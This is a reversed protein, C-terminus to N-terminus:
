QTQLGRGAVGVQVQDVPIELAGMQDGAVDHVGMRLFYNGKVPIAVQQRLPMGTRLLTRYTADDLDVAATSLLSNVPQGEQTYVITAFELTGHRVGDASQTLKVRHIDAQFLITDVRFPKAEWGAQLYNGQPLPTKKEFKQVADSPALSATFVIETPPVAGLVMADQFGGKPHHVLVGAPTQDSAVPEPAAVQSEAISQANGGRAARKQIAAIQRQEVADRNVAYYGQRHQVHVGPRDVTIKIHRYEGDWATNTTAYALTYYNSGNRVVEAIVDKLGNTNFYAKGGTNEAVAQLDYIDNNMRSAFSAGSHGHAGGAPSMDFGDDLGRTDVPYIAVRSITLNDTLDSLDGISGGVVGFSDKFPNGLGSGFITLPVQGTFWILNKRGQFGALYRGLMQMGDRLVERKTQEYITRNGRIPREISPMNRKSEAAALLTEQDSSFGQILRMETDLQFIAISAGPQMNKLYAILQERLYQQSTIPTDLADLLVVTSANTNLVPTYNSFTNPPLAPTAHLLAVEADAMPQHEELRRITQPAGEETVTFDKPTLGTVPHGTADTVLVDLLVERATVSITPTPGAQPPAQQPAAQAVVGSGAALLMLSSLASFLKKGHGSVISTM